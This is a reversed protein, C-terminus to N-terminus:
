PGNGSCVLQFHTVPLCSDPLGEMVERVKAEIEQANVITVIHYTKELFATLKELDQKAGPLSKYGSSEEYESNTIVIAVRRRQTEESSRTKAAQFLNMARKRQFPLAHAPLLDLANKNKKTRLKINVRPDELLRELADIKLESAALMVPSLGDSDPVNCDVNVQELLIDIAEVHECQVAVHLSTQADEGGVEDPKYCPEQLIDRMSSYQEEIIATNLKEYLQEQKERKENGEKELKKVEHLAKLVGEM